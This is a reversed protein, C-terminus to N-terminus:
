LKANKNAKKPPKLAISEMVVGAGPLGSYSGLCPMFDQTIEALQSAIVASGRLSPDDVGGALLEM